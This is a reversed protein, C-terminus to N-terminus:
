RKKSGRFIGKITELLPVAPPRPSRVHDFLEDWYAGIPPLDIAGEGAIARALLPAFARGVVPVDRIPEKVVVRRGQEDDVEVPTVRLVALGERTRDWALCSGDPLDVVRSVAHSPAGNDHEFLISDIAAAGRVRWEGKGVFLRAGGIQDYFAVLEGPLGDAIPDTPSREPSPEAARERVVDDRSLLDAIVAAISGETKRLTWAARPAIRGEPDVEVALVGGELTVDFRRQAVEDVVQVLCSGGWPPVEDTTISPGTYWGPGGTNTPLDDALFDLPQELLPNRRDFRGAREYNKLYPYLRAIWGTIREAGYAAKPKYIQQFFPVDPKGSAADVLRDAIPALSTAWWGLELEAIVDVRARISRWDDVTGTLTVEPIGCVCMLLYDFYPSFADLLLIESATREVDTTTSFDCALLRARGDGIEAALAARLRTVIEAISPADTPFPGGWSVQLKKRGEHRVLRSRLRSAHIRVHQAVGQAITLWVVDPSLVLPRHEAFAQHVAGLLAHTGTSVVQMGRDGGVVLAGKM